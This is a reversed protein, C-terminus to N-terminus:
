PAHHCKGDDDTITVTLPTSDLIVNDMFLAPISQFMVNFSHPGEISSDDRGQIGIVSQPTTVSGSSFTVQFPSTVTYDTYLDAFLLQCVFHCM